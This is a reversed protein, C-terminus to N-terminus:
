SEWGASSRRSHRCRLRAPVSRRRGKPQSQCSPTRAVVLLAAELVSAQQLYEYFSSPRLATRRQKPRRGTAQMGNLAALTGGRRFHALISHRRKSHGFASVRLACQHGRVVVPSGGDGLLPFVCINEGDNWLAREAGREANQRPRDCRSLRPGGNPTLRSERKSLGLTAFIAPAAWTACRM